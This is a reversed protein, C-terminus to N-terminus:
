DEVGPPTSQRSASVSELRAELESIRRVVAIKMLGCIGTDMFFFSLSFLLGARFAVNVAFARTEDDASMVEYVGATCTAMLFLLGLMSLAKLARIEAPIWKPPSSAMTSM